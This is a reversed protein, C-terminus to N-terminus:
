VSASVIIDLISFLSLMVKILYIRGRGNYVLLVSKHFLPRPPRRYTIFLDIYPFLHSSTTLM